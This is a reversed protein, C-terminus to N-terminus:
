EASRFLPSDDPVVPVARARRLVISCVECGPCPKQPVPAGSSVKDGPAPAGVVPAELTVAQAIREGITLDLERLAQPALRASEEFGPDGASLVQSAIVHRCVQLTQTSLANM